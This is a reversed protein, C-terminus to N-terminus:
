ELPAFIELTHSRNVVCLLGKGSNIESNFCLSHVAESRKRQIDYREITYCDSVFELIIAAFVNTSSMYDGNSQMFMDNLIKGLDSISMWGTIHFVPLFNNSTDNIGVIFTFNDLWRICSIKNNMVVTVTEKYHLDVSYTNIYEHSLQCVIIRGNNGGCYCVFQGNNTVVFQDEIMEYKSGGDESKYNYNSKCNKPTDINDQEFKIMNDYIDDIPTGFILTKDNPSRIENMNEGNRYCTLERTIDYVVAKGWNSMGSSKGDCIYIYVRNNRVISDISANSLANNHDSHRGYLSQHNIIDTIYISTNGTGVVYMNKCLKYHTEENEVGYYNLGRYLFHSSLVNGNSGQVFQKTQNTFDFVHMQTTGFFGPILCYRGDTSTSTGQLVLQKAQFCLKSTTSIQPIKDTKTPKKIHIDHSMISGNIHTTIIHINNLDKQKTNKKIPVIIDSSLINIINNKTGFVSQTKGAEIVQLNQPSWKNMWKSTIKTQTTKPITNENINLFTFANGM